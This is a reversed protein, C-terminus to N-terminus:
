SKYAVLFTTGVAAFSKGISVSFILKLHSLFDRVLATFLMPM